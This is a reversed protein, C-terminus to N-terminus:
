VDTCRVLSVAPNPHCRHGLVPTRVIRRYRTARFEGDVNHYAYGPGVKLTVGNNWSKNRRCLDAELVDTKMNLTYNRASMIWSGPVEGASCPLGRAKRGELFEDELRKKRNTDRVLTLFAKGQGSTNVADSEADNSELAHASSCLQDDSLKVQEHLLEIEEFPVGCLSAVEKKLASVPANHHMYISEVLSAGSLGFVAFEIAKPDDTALQQSVTGVKGAEINATNRGAVMAWNGM